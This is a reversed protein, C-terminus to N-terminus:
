LQPDRDEETRLIVFTETSAIEIHERLRGSLLSYLDSMKRAIVKAVLDRAEIEAVRVEAGGRSNGRLSLMAAAGIVVVLIVGIFAKAKGSM